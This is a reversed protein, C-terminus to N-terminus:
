KPLLICHSRLSIEDEVDCVTISDISHDADIALNEFGMRGRRFNEIEVTFRSVKESAFRKCDSRPFPLFCRSLGMGNLSLAICQADDGSYFAGCGSFIVRQM